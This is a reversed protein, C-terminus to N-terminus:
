DKCWNTKSNDNNIVLDTDFSKAIYIGDVQQQLDCNNTEFYIKGDPVIYM